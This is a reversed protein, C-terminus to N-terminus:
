PPLDSMNWQLRSGGVNKECAEALAWFYRAGSADLFQGGHVLVQPWEAQLTVSTGCMDPPINVEKPDVQFGQGWCKLVAEKRVWTSLLADYRQSGDLQAIAGLEVTSLTLSSAGELDAYFDNRDAEVDIGIDEHCSTALMVCNANHSLSFHIGCDPLYPKGAPNIELRIDSPTQGTMCAIVSRCLQRGAIFHKRGSVSRFAAARAKEEPSLVDTNCVTDHRLHWCHIAIESESM